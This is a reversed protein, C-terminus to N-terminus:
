PATSTQVHMPCYISTVQHSFKAERMAINMSSYYDPHHDVFSRTVFGRDYLKQAFEDQSSNNLSVRNVVEPLAEYIRARVVAEEPTVLTEQYKMMPDDIEWEDMTKATSAVYKLVPISFALRFMGTVRQSVFPLWSFLGM